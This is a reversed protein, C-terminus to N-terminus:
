RELMFVLWFIRRKIEADRVDSCSYTSDDHLRLSIAFSVTQSLYFWAENQRELNAYASFLFCSTLLTDTDPDEAINLTNRTNIAEQLLYDQTYPAYVENAVDDAGVLDSVSRKPALNFQINTAACLAVLLCYQKPTLSEPDECDALTKEPRVVPWIPFMWQLFLRVHMRLLQASVRSSRPPSRSLTSATTISCSENASRGYFAPASAPSHIPTPFGSLVRPDRGAHLTSSADDRIIFPERPSCSLSPQPVTTHSSRTKRKVYDRYTCSLLGDRCKSCPQSRDCRVKRRRCPDCVQM